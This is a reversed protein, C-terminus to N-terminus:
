EEDAIERLHSTDNLCTLVTGRPTFDLTCTAAVDLKLRRYRSLDLEIAKCLICLTVFFHTVVVVTGKEGEDQHRYLIDEIAAWAEDQLEALSGGGPLRVAAADTIWKDLFKGHKSRMEEGTLGDLEGADLEILGDLTVVELQHFRAIAEATEGARKLPSAYIAELKQDKLAQALAQAQRRGRKNLGLNGLGQVRHQQNWETEGHRVLILRM